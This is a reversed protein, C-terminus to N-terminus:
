KVEVGIEMRIWNRLEVASLSDLGYASLSKGPEIPDPLRLIREFKSGVASVAASVMAPAEAGSKRLLLLTDVDKEPILECDAPQPVPIGSILQSNITSTQQLISLGLIKHLVYENIGIWQRDDFHNQMGGKEAVHGINEIVSLNISDTSLGKSIRYSAFADLFVNAASYNAQGNQGIVGSIPSPLSSFKLPKKLEASANHLNWTETISKAGLTYDLDRLNVRVDLGSFHQDLKDAYAKLSNADNASFVLKYPRSPEEEDYMDDEPTMHSSVHTPGYGPRVTKVEDLVVHSNTGGYGFSNISARRFDSKPWPISTHTARIWLEDFNIKPNPTQFTPNGAIISHEIALIAKFLGSLGAAAEGRVELPNRAPTGTGHCKLYSTQGFSSIGANAYAARVTAAVSDPSAIGPTRGDSDAVSGRIVARIPDRDRIADDLRRLIITNVAEAKIYGDSKADFTHYRGTRSHAMGIPGTDM